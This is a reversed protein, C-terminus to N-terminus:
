VLRAENCFCSVSRYFHGSCRSSRRHSQTLLNLPNPHAPCLAAAAARADAESPFDMEVRLDNTTIPSAAGFQQSHRATGQHLIFTLSYYSGFRGLRVSATRLAQSSVSWTEIRGSGGNGVRQTVKVDGGSANIVQSIRSGGVLVSENNWTGGASYSVPPSALLSRWSLLRRM